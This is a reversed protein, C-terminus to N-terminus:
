LSVPFMTGGPTSYAPAEASTSFTAVDIARPDAGGTTSNDTPVDEALCITVVPSAIWLM